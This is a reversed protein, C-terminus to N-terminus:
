STAKWDKVTDDAIAKYLAADQAEDAFVVSQGSVMGTGKSPNTIFRLQDGSIGRLDMATDVVSFGRDVTLTQACSQLFDSLKLPNALIGATTAKNLIARLVQQQHEIRSFDGNSFQKRQRAYDLAEEGNLHQRGAQFVRFPAHISTFTKDITVDIGGITDVVKAFGAFDIVAVHDIRVKTISEVTQTMLAIGGWAFAANIKATVGGHQGDASKPIKVWTDRPISILQASKHDASVHALIITDTRSGDLEPNRSDSGLMLINMAATVTKVPRDQEPIQALDDVHTVTSNDIHRVYQWGAIAGGAALVVLIVGVILVVKPWRRRKAPATEAPTGDPAATAEDSVTPTADPADTSPADPYTM